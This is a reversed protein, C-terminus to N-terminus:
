SCKLETTTRYGIGSDRALRGWSLRNAKPRLRSMEFASLRVMRLHAPAQNRKNIGKSPFASTSTMGVPFGDLACGEVGGSQFLTQALTQHERCSPRCTVRGARLAAASVAV